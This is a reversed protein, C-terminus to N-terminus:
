LRADLWAIIDAHVEDKNTEEYIAHRAGEYYKESVDKIGLREKYRKVLPELMRLRGNTTDMTGAVIFVPLSTPIRAENEPKWLRNLANAFELSFGPTIQFGCYPDADYNKVIAEDRSIWDFDTGTPSPEFPKNFKKFTMKFIFASPTDAGIKKAQSKALLPGLKQIIFTQKGTSGCLVVGKLEAGHLQIYNQSLYSGWSHGFLFVPKGPQEKKIIDTLQKMDEVAADWGGPGFIGLKSVDGATKGHGRHDDAYCAYGAKTLSEAFHEYRGAHEGLGHSLQVCAKIAGDPLWKYVFIDVGHADKFTFTSSIM